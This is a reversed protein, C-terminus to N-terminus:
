KIKTFGKEYNYITVSIEPSYEFIQGIMELVVSWDGGGLGCGMHNPIAISKNLYNAFIRIADLGNGLSLYDTYKKDTGYKDQGFINAIYHNSYHNSDPIDYWYVIGKSRIDEFSFGTCFLKYSKEINPYKRKIQKALGSGMVGQHNVSQCIIDETAELINGEKFKIM